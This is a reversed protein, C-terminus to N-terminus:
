GARRPGTQDGVLGEEAAGQGDRGRDVACREAPHQEPDRHRHPRLALVDDDRHQRVHRGHRGDHDRGVRRTRRGCPRPRSGAPSSSPSRAPDAVLRPVDLFAVGALVAAAAALLLFLWPPRAPRTAPAPPASPTLDQQTVLEARARLAQALLTETASLPEGEGRFM